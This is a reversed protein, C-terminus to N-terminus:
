TIPESGLNFPLAFAKYFLMKAKPSQQRVLKFSNFFIDLIRKKPGVILAFTTLTRLPSGGLTESGWFNGIRAPTLM